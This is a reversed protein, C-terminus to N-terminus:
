RELLDTLAKECAAISALVGLMQADFLVPNRTVVVTFEKGYVNKFVRHASAGHFDGDLPLFDSKPIGLLKQCQNLRLGSVFHFPCLNTNILEQINYENYNAKDFVLTADCDGRGLQRNGDKLKSIIAFFRQADNTNGPYTEHFLPTNHDPSVM